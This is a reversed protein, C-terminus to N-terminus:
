SLLTRSSPEENAQPVSCISSASSWGGVSDLKTLHSFFAISGFLYFAVGLCDRLANLLCLACSIEIKLYSVPIWYFPTSNRSSVISM